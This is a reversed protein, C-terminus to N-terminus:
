KYFHCYEEFVNLVRVFALYFLFYNNLDFDIYITQRLQYETEGGNRRIKASTKFIAETSVSM